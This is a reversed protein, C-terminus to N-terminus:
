IGRQNLFTRGARPAEMEVNLSSFLLAMLTEKSVFFFGHQVIYIFDIPINVRGSSFFMSVALIM